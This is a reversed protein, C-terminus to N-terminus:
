LVGMGFEIREERIPEGLKAIICERAKSESARKLAEKESNFLGKFVGDCIVVYKGRHERGYREQIERLTRESKERCTIYDLYDRSIVENVMLWLKIAENLAEGITYGKLSAVSKLRRYLSKDVNKVVIINGLNSM